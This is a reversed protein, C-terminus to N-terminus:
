ASISKIYTVCPNEVLFNNYAFMTIWDIVDTQLIMLDIYIHTWSAWYPYLFTSNCHSIWFLLFDWKHYSVAFLIYIYLAPSTTALFGAYIGQEEM